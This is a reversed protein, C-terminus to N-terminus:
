GWDYTFHSAGGELVMECWLAVANEDLTVEAKPLKRITRLADVFLMQEGRKMNFTLFPQLEPNIIELYATSSCVNALVGMDSLQNFIEWRYELTKTKDVMVSKAARIHYQLMGVSVRVDSLIRDGTMAFAM